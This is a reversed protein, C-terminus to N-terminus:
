VARAAGSMAQLAPLPPPARRLNPANPANISPVNYSMMVGALRLTQRLTVAVDVRQEVTQSGSTVRAILRLTGVMEDAPIVFNLTGALNGRTAAYGPALASPAETTSSPAASLPAAPQWLAGPGRRQLELTGTVGTAGHLSWLYVRVWAPKWAVLRVANDAGRDSPDTLHQESEYYQIAQTVEIGAIALRFRWLVSDGVIRDLRSATVLQHTSDM